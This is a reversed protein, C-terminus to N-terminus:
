VTFTPSTLVTYESGLTGGSAKFGTIFATAPVFAGEVKISFDSANYTVGSDSMNLINVTIYNYGHDSDKGVYKMTIDEDDKEACGALGIFLLSAALLFCLTKLFKKM